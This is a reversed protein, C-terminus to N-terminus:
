ISVGRTALCLAFFSSRIQSFFMNRREYGGLRFRQLIGHFHRASAAHPPSVNYTKAGTNQNLKHRESVPKWADTNNATNERAFVRLPVTSLPQAYADVTIYVWDEGFFLSKLTRADMLAQNESSWNGLAADDWDTPEVSKLPSLKESSPRAKLKKKM